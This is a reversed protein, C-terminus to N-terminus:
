LGLPGTIASTAGVSGATNKATVIARLTSSLNLGSLLFTQSTAKAIDTCTGLLCLQWQYTYTIPQSRNM